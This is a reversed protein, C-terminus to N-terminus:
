RMTRFPVTTPQSEKGRALRVKGRALRVKGRALRVKGRQPRHNPEIQTDAPSLAAAGSPTRAARLFVHDDSHV